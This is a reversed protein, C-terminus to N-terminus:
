VEALDDYVSSGAGGGCNHKRKRRLYKNVASTQEGALFACKDELDFILQLIDVEDQCFGEAKEQFIKGARKRYSKKSWKAALTDSL